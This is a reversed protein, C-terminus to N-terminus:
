PASLGSTDGEEVPTSRNAPAALTLEWNNVDPTHYNQSAAYGGFSQQYYLGNAYSLGNAPPGQLGFIQQAPSVPTIVPPNEGLRVVKNPNATAAPVPPAFISTARFAPQPFQTFVGM